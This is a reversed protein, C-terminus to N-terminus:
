QWRLIFMTAAEESEIYYCNLGIAFRSTSPYQECWDYIEEYNDRNRLPVCVWQEVTKRRTFYGTETTFCKM